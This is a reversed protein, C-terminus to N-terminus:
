NSLEVKDKDLKFRIAEANENTLDIV